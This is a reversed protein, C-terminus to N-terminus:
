KKTSVVIVRSGSPLDVVTGTEPDVLQITHPHRDKSYPNYKKQEEEGLQKWFCQDTVIYEKNKKPTYKTKM